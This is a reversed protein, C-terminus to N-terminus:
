LGSPLNTGYDGGLSGTGTQSSGSTEQSAATTSDNAETPM